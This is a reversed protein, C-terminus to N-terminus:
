RCVHSSSILILQQRPGDTSDTIDSVTTETTLNLTVQGYNWNDGYNGDKQFVVTAAPQLLLVQLRHVDEGFMHYRCVFGSLTKNEQNSKQKNGM